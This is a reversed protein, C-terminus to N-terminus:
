AAQDLRQFLQELERAMQTKNKCPIRTSEGCRRGQSDMAVYTISLRAGTQTLWIRRMSAWDEVVIWLPNNRTLYTQPQRWGSYDTFRLGPATQWRMELVKYIERYPKM